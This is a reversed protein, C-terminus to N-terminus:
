LFTFQILIFPLQVMFTHLYHMSFLFNLHRLSIENRTVLYLMELNCTKVFDITYKLTVMQIQESKFM